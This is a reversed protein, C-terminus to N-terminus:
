LPKDIRSLLIEQHHLRNSIGTDEQVFEVRYYVSGKKVRDDVIISQGLDTYLVASFSDFNSQNNQTFDGSRPQLYGEFEKVLEFNGTNSTNGWDDGYDTARYLGLTAYYNQIM